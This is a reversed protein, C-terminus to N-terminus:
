ADPLVADELTRPRVQRDPVETRGSSTMAVEAQPVPESSQQLYDSLISALEPAHPPDIMKVHHADMGRVEIGDGILDGWGLFPDDDIESPRFDRINATILLIGGPYFGPTYAEWASTMADAVAQIAQAASSAGVEANDAFLDSDKKTARRYFYALRSTLYALNERPDQQLGAM